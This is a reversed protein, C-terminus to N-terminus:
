RKTHTAKRMRSRYESKTLKIAAASTAAASPVDAPPACDGDSGAPPACLWGLKVWPRGRLPLPFVMGGLDRDPVGDGGRVRDPPTGLAQSGGIGLCGGRRRDRSSPLPAAAPTATVVAVAAVGEPPGGLRWDERLGIGAASALM